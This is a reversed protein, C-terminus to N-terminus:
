RYRLLYTDMIWGYQHRAKARKTIIEESCDELRGAVLLENPMGLFAGWWIDFDTPNLTQFACNGDLMVVVTACDAPWGHNRLNRGTTVTISGGLTNLPIRHAATLLQFSTLGPIVSVNIRMGAITLRKAIRLSSDYLSPDGWVMLAVRGGSVLNETIKQQWVAAIAAHWDTVGHLYNDRDRDRVPLDFEVVKAPKQLVQDCIQRRLDALDAKDVGKRPLLVIDAANLARIAGNTLHEPNGMGIGIFDLAIM